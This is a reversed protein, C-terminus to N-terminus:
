FTFLTKKLLFLMDFYDVKQVRRIRNSKRVNTTSYFKRREDKKFPKEEALNIKYDIKNQNRVM